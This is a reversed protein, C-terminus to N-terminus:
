GLRVEVFDDIKMEEPSVTCNMAKIQVGAEQAKLLAEAFESHTARNPKFYDCNEMQVVFFIYAEYGDKICKCLENVHKVGRETPADPFM